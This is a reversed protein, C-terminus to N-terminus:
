EDIVKKINNYIKYIVVGIKDLGEVVERIIDLSVILSEIEVNMMEMKKELEEIEM